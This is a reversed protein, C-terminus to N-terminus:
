YIELNQEKVKADWDSDFLEGPATSHVLKFDGYGTADEFIFLAGGRISHYYWREWPHSYAPAVIEERDDWQGYQMLVRGRDTRWGDLKGPRLSFNQNAYNFRRLADDLYENQETGPTPDKDKFYQNIYRVKGSDNLGNFVALEQASFLYRVLNSKMELSATDLPSKMTYKVAEPLVGSRPFIMFRSYASAVGNTSPDTATLSLLYRGAPWNEISLANAIVSTAGPKEKIIEGFDQMLSGDSRLARYSIKFTQESLTDYALNYLEAYVYIVSDDESYIGMPNPIIEYGNKVLRNNYRGASDDVTEIRSALELSSLSLRDYIVPPIEIRDYLFAGEKKSSVDIVSLKGKYVGAPLMMSLKNFLRINGRGADVSDLARSYFYTSVSDVATGLTDTIVVEAFVAARLDSSGSDYPLFTFQNRGASFPFEIYIEPGTEPSGFLYIGAQISLRGGEETQGWLPAEVGACSLLILLISFRKM